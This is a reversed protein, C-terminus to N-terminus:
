TYPNKENKVSEEIEKIITESFREASFLHIKDGKVYDEIAKQYGIYESDTMEKMYKYLGEWTPFERKDIFTDEPIYDKINPAGWYIPVCGPSFRTLYRRQSTDRYTGQM